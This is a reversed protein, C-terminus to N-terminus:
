LRVVPAGMGSSSRYGGRRRFSGAAHPRFGRRCHALDSSSGLEEDLGVGLVAVEADQSESGRQGCTEGVVDGVLSDVRMIEQERLSGIGRSVLGAVHISVGAVLRRARAALVSPEAGVAALLTTDGVRTVSGGASGSALVAWWDGVWFGIRVHGPM